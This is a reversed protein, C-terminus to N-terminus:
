VIEDEILISAGQNSLSEFHEAIKNSTEKLTDVLLLFSSTLNERKTQCDLSLRKRFNRGTSPAYVSAAAAGLLGGVLFGLLFNKESQSCM